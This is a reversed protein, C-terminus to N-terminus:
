YRLASSAGNYAPAVTSHFNNQYGVANQFTTKLADQQQKAAMMQQLTQAQSIQNSEQQTRLQLLLAQNIRQLTAMETQQAPDPSHSAAELASIDAERQQANARITGLTQLSTANVTDNLDSTAGQAAIQQKSATSMSSYGPLQSSRTVSVQQTASSAGSGTNAANMWSQTNGYTNASPTLATWYTNPSSYTKYLSQPATMMQRSFNYANVANQYTQVTTTYIQTGQYLQQLAHASQTPDFVVGGFQAHATSALTTSLLAALLVLRKM